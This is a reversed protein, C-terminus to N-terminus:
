DRYVYFGRGSKRGLRGAAVLKRLLPAPRYKDDGLDRQLVELIALCVDLGILDALALPGLPHNMGLKMVTDVAEPTAVGEMVCFAAENIMPMLVRNSVFGPADQVVVPVKKLVEVVEIVKRVTEEGTELGRIVEVLQMVPVPNMFHMGIVRAPRRTQAAITTISISSTNTALIATPPALRDLDRFIRFKVDPQETAAEVVLEVDAVADLSSATRIRGLAADRQEATLTGKKVQRELNARIVQIVRELLGPAVDILATDWGHQAFVHAIGNGMTGAGVVAVRSV